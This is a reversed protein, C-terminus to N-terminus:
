AALRCVATAPCTGSVQRYHPATSITKQSWCPLLDTMPLIWGACCPRKRPVRNTGRVTVHSCFVVSAFLSSPVLHIAATKDAARRDLEHPAVAAGITRLYAKKYVKGVNHYVLVKWTQGPSIRTSPPTNAGFIHNRASQGHQKKQLARHPFHGPPPPPRNPAHAATALM